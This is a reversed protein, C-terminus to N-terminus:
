IIDEKEIRRRIQWDKIWGTIRIFAVILILVCVVAAIILYMYYRTDLVLVKKKAPQPASPLESIALAPVPTDKVATDAIVTDPIEEYRVSIRDIGRIDLPNDVAASDNKWRNSFLSKGNIPILYQRTSNKAV